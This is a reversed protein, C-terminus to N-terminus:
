DEIIPGPKTWIGLNYVPIFVMANGDYIEFRYHSDKYQISVDIAEEKDVFITTSPNNGVDYLDNFLNVRNIQHLLENKDVALTKSIISQTYDGMNATVHLAIPIIDTGAVDRDIKEDKLHYINVNIMREEGDSIHPAQNIIGNFTLLRISEM